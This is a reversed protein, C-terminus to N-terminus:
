ASTNMGTRVTIDTIDVAGAQPGTADSRQFNVSRRTFPYEDEYLPSSLANIRTSGDRGVHSMWDEYDLSTNGNLRVGRGVVPLYLRSLSSPNNGYRYTVRGAPIANADTVNVGDVLPTWAKGTDNRGGPVNRSETFWILPSKPTLHLDFELSV